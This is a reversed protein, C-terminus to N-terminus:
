RNRPRGSWRARSPRRTPARFPFALHARRLHEAVPQEGGAALADRRLRDALLPEDVRDPRVGDRERDPRRAGALGVEGDRGRHARQLVPLDRAQDERSGGDLRPLAEPVQRAREVLLDIRVHTREVVRQELHRAGLGQRAQHLAAGDLDRGQGVHPASGQIIREDDQVLRLVRRGLLHLHEERADPEARLGDDVAVRGLDVELLPARTPRATTSSIRPSTSSMANQWRPPRSTTRWLITCSM